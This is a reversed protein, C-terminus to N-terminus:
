WRYGNGASSRLVNGSVGIRCKVCMGNGSGGTSRRIGSEHRLVIRRPMSPASTTPSCVRSSTRENRPQQWSNRPSGTSPSWTWIGSPRVTQTRAYGALTSGHASLRVIREGSTAAALVRRSDSRPSIVIMRTSRRSGLLFWCTPKRANERSSSIRGSRRPLTRKRAKRMGDRVSRLM